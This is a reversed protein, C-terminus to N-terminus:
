AKRRGTSFRLVYGLLAAPALYPVSLFALQAAPAFEDVAGFGESLQIALAALVILVLEYDAASGVRRRSWALVLAIMQLPLTLVLTHNWIIPTVLVSATVAVAVLETRELRRRRVAWALVVAGLLFISLSGVDLGALALIRNLSFSREYSLQHIPQTAMETLRPLMPALLLAAAFSGALGAVLHRRGGKAPRHCLLAVLALPALPKAAVTAGLALGSPLAGTAPTRRSWQTLSVLIVGIVAFSVNGTCLGGAVAPAVAVYVGGVLMRRGWPLRSWALACWIATVLGALSLARAIVLTGGEGATRLLLSGAWAFLPTYHYSAITYPSDGQTVARFAALYTEEDILPEGLLLCHHWRVLAVAAILALALAHRWLGLASWEDLRRDLDLEEPM